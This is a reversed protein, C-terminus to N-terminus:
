VGWVAKEADRAERQHDKLMQINKGAFERVEVHRAHDREREYQPIETGYQQALLKTYGKDFNIGGQSTLQGYVTRQPVTLDRPQELNFDHDKALQQIDRLDTRREEVIAQGLKKVHDSEAHAAAYEGLKWMFVDDQARQRLFVQEQPDLGEKRDQAGTPVTFALVFFVAGSAVAISRRM